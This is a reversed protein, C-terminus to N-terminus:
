HSDLAARRPRGVGAFPGVGHVGCVADAGELVFAVETGVLCSAEEVGEVFGEFSGEVVRELLSELVAGVRVRLRWAVFRLGGRHGCSPEGQVGSGAADLDVDVGLASFRAEVDLAALQVYLGAVVSPVDVLSVGFAVAVRAGADELVELGGFGGEGKGLVGAEVEVDSCAGEVDVVYGGEGAAQVGTVNLGV